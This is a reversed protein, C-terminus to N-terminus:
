EPYWVVSRPERFSDVSVAMSALFLAMRSSAFINEIASLSFLYIPSTPGGTISTVWMDGSASIVEDSIPVFGAALIDQELISDRSTLRQQFTAPDWFSFNRWDTEPWKDRCELVGGVLSYTSLLTRIWPPIFAQVKQPLAEWEAAPIKRSPVRLMQFRRELDEAANALESPLATEISMDTTEVKTNKAM